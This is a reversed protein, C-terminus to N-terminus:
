MGKPRERFFILDELSLCDSPIEDIVTLSSYKAQFAGYMKKCQVIYEWRSKKMLYYVHHAYVPTHHICKKTPKQLVKKEILFAGSVTCTRECLRLKLEFLFSDDLLQEMQPLHYLSWKNASSECFSPLVITQYKNKLESRSSHARARQMCGGSLYHYRFVGFSRPWFRQFHLVFLFFTLANSFLLQIVFREVSSCNCIKKVQYASWM